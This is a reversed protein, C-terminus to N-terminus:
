FIMLDYEDDNSDSSDPFQLRIKEIISTPLLVHVGTTGIWTLQKLKDLSKKKQPSLLSNDFKRPNEIMKKREELIKIKLTLKGKTIRNKKSIKRHLFVNPLKKIAYYVFPTTVTCFHELEVLISRSM